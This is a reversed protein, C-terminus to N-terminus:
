LRRILKALRFTNDQHWFESMRSTFTIKTYYFLIQSISKFIKNKNLM